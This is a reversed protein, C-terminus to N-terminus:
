GRDALCRSMASCTMQVFSRGLSDKAFTRLACRDHQNAFLRAIVFIDRAFWEYTRSPFNHIARERVSSDIPRLNVDRVSHFVEFPLGASFAPNM